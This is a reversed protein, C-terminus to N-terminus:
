VDCSMGGYRTEKHGHQSTSSRHLRAVAPAHYHPLPRSNTTSRCQLSDNWPPTGVQATCLSHWHSGCVGIYVRVSQLLAEMRSLSLTQVRPHFWSRM